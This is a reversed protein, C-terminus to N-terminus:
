AVKAAENAAAFEERVSPLFLWVSVLVALGLWSLNALDPGEFTSSVAGFLNWLVLIAALLRGFRNFKWVGVAAVLYVCGFALDEFGDVLQLYRGQGMSDSLGAGRVGVLEGIGVLGRPLGGLIFLAVVLAHLAKLM